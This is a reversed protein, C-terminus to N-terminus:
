QKGGVRGLSTSVDRVGEVGWYRVTSRPVSLKRAVSSQSEGYGLMETIAGRKKKPLRAMRDKKICDAVNEAQTAASLHDPNVCARNDCNHLVVHGDPIEAVHLVYSVRHAYTIRDGDWFQGYGNPRKSAFWIWCGSKDEKWKENFRDYITLM